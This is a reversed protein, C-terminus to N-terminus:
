FIPDINQSFFKNRIKIFYVIMTVFIKGVQNM